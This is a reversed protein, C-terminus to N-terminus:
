DENMGLCGHLMSRARALLVYLYDIRMELKGAIEIATYGQYSLNLTRAFRRNARAVQELCHLVSQVFEEDPDYRDAPAMSAIVQPQLRARTGKTQVHSSITNRLVNHAWGAFSSDFTIEKYKQAVVALADQVVDEAEAHDRFRHTAFIRFSDTLVSFLEQVALNDGAQARRCLQEIHSNDQPSQMFLLPM